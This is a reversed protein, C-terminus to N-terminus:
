LYRSQEKVSLNKKELKLVFTASKSKEQFVWLQKKFWFCIQKQMM